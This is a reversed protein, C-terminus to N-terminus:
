ERLGGNPVLSAGFRVSGGLLGTAGAVVELASLILPSICCVSSLVASLVGGVTSWGEKMSAGKGFPRKSQV